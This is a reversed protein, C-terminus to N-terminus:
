QIIVKAIFKQVKYLMLNSYRVALEILVQSLDISLSIKLEEVFAIIRSALIKLNLSNIILVQSYYRKLVYLKFQNSM